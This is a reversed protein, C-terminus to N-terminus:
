SVRRQKDIFVIYSTEWEDPEQSPDSPMTYMFPSQFTHTAAAAATVTATPKPVPAFVQPQLGFHIRSCSPWLLFAPNLFM